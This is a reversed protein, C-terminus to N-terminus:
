LPEELLEEMPDKPEEPPAATPAVGARSSPTLYMSRALEHMNARHADLRASFGKFNGTVGNFQSWMSVFEKLNDKTPKLKSIKKYLEEQAQDLKQLKNELTREEEVAKCYTILVREDFSTIIPAGDKAAQTESQLSIIRQWTAISIKRGRLEAPPTITLTTFPQLSSEATHRAARTELSDNRTLLSSPKKKPV